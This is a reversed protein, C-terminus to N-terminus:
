DMISRDNRSDQHSKGFRQNAFNVSKIKLLGNISEPFLATIDTYSNKLCLENMQATMKSKICNYQSRPVHFIIM